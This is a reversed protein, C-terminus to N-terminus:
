GMARQQTGQLHSVVQPILGALQRAVEAIDQQSLQRQQQGFTQQQGMAALQPAHGGFAAQGWPTQAGLGGYPAIPQAGQGQLMGVIQPLVPLIQRVVENVDQSTLTRAQQGSSGYHGFAAQPQQAQGIIQPLLPVLQRVVESVDQPSLQRQPQGWGTQGMSGGLNPNGFQGAFPAYAAQGLGNSTGPFGPVPQGIPSTSWPQPSSQQGQMDFYTM